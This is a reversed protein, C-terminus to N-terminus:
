IIILKDKNTEIVARRESQEGHHTKLERPAQQLAHTAHQMNRTSQQTNRTSQRPTTHTRTYTHSYTLSHIRIHISTYTHTPFQPEQEVLAYMYPHPSLILSSICCPLFPPLLCGTCMCMADIGVFFRLCYMMCLYIMCVYMMLVNFVSGGVWM